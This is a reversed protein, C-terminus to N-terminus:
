CGGVEWPLHVNPIDGVPLHNSQTLHGPHGVHLHVGRGQSTGPTGEGKPFEPRLNALLNCTWSRMVRCIPCANSSTIVGNPTATTTSALYAWPPLDRREKGVRARVWLESATMHTHHHSPDLLRPGHCHGGEHRPLEPVISSGTLLEQPQNALTCSAQVL